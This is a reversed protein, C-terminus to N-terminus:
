TCVPIGAGLYTMADLSAVSAALLAAPPHAFPYEAADFAEGTTLTYRLWQVLAEARPLSTTAGHGPDAPVLYYVLAALPYDNAGPANVWSVSSWSQNPAPFMTPDAAYLDDIASQTTAATPVVFSGSPNRVAAVSLAGARADYLDTYGIAGVYKRVNEIMQANGTAGQERPTSPWAPALSTGLDPTSAWTANAGSLLDTLVFSMGAPDARHVAVIPVDMGALGPNEAVLTPDDWRTVHGLYIAALDQGTLHLTGALGPLDVVIAVAGALVPLTLVPGVAALLSARESPGVGEDTLAFDVLRETLYQIGLRAGGPNYNVLNSTAATYDAQWVSLVSSPFSAGSGQLLVGRPCSSVGPSSLGYWGTLAGVGVFLLAALVVGISM